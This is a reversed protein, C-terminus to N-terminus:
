RQRPESPESLVTLVSLVTFSHSIIVEESDPTKVGIARFPSHTHSHSHSLKETVIHPTEAGFARVPRTPSHQLSLSLILEDSGTNEGGGGTGVRLGHLVLM